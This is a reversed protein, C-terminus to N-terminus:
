TYEPRVGERGLEDFAPIIVQAVIEKLEKADMSLLAEANTANPLIDVQLNQIVLSQNGGGGGVSGIFDTLDRNQNPSLVREGRDLLYTAEKPVNTLGGHASGIAAGLGAGTAAGASFGAAAAMGAAAAAAPAGLSIPFPAGAVSAFMNAYSLGVAKAAESSAETAAAGKSLIATAVRQAGMKVFMKIVEKLVGKATSKVADLLTTSGTLADAIGDSISDVASQMTTFMSEAMFEFSNAQEDMYSQWMESVREQLTLVSDSVVVTTEEAVEGFTQFGLTLENVRESVGDLNLGIIDSLSTGITTFHTVAAEAMESTSGALTERAKETAEPLRRFLLEALDPGESDTFAAKINEWAWEGITIVSEFAVKFVDVIFQGITSFVSIASNFISVFANKFNTVFDKFGEFTTVSEVTKGVAEFVKEGVALVTWFAKIANRTFVVFHERNNAFFNSIRDMVNTFIPALEDSISRFIGTTAAVMNSFSDGFREANAAAQKSIVAGFKYAENTLGRFADEGDGLMQLMSVGESDFLKFAIRTRDAASEVGELQKALLAMKDDISLNTFSRADIGLERLAGQAEGLGKAAEAARRELRQMSMDVQQLGIGSREAAFEIATIEEVAQGLRKSFKAARDEASTMKKTLAFLATGAGVASAGVKVILKSMSSVSKSVSNITGSFKDKGKITFEIVNSM